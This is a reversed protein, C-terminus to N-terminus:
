TATGSTLLASFVHELEGMKYPKALVGKFGHSRYEALMLDHSYGSSVVLCAEPDRALILQAAEKGGMGGPITLDMLVAAYPRGGEKAALYRRVAAEGDSCTEVEYGLHTLMSAALDCIMDEDDMVLIRPHLDAAPAPKAATEVSVSTTPGEQTAPLYLTFTTGSGVTSEVGITGGHRSVISYASALGLGSGTPKTSFYPDFIREVIEATMGCGEDSLDIRVYNGGPLTPLANGDELHVNEARIRLTGGTPMAQVANIIMNNLVQSIQGADAEIARLSPDIWTEGRVNSGRLMLTMAENILPAVSVVQRIPEGGRAFTLLQGTLEAARVSAQEASKLPQLAPHGSDLLAQAFSLNGMIGTLINNFDHAIGGALVGISELKQMKILENRLQERETIDTFLVVIRGGILQTNAIAHRIEGNKCAIYVEVPRIPSGEQRAREIEELWAAVLPERYGPDPYALLFWQEDTPIEDLSYGFQQSFNVNLYEITTGDTLAIGVPMADLIDRLEQEGRHLREMAARYATVERRLLLYILGATSGVFFWGKFTQAQTILVPDRLLLAVLYDSFIIWLVAVILYILAIKRPIRAGHHLAAGRKKDHEPWPSQPSQPRSPAPM